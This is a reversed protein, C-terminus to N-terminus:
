ISFLPSKNHEIVIADNKVDVAVFEAMRPL